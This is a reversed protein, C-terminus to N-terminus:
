EPKGYCNRMKYNENVLEREKSHVLLGLAEKESVWKVQDVELDKKVSQYGPELTMNWYLVIKPKNAVQYVTGGAFGNIKLEEKKCGIEECVERQAAELWTENKELKGKPLTWEDGYRTRHIIAIKICGTEERWVLGGAAKIVEDAQTEM